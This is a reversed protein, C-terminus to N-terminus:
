GGPLAFWISGLALCQFFLVSKSPVLLWVEPQEAAVPASNAPLVYEQCHRLHSLQYCCLCSCAVAGQRYTSYSRRWCSTRFTGSHAGSTHNQRPVLVLILASLSFGSKCCTTKTSSTPCTSPQSGGSLNQNFSTYLLLHMVDVYCQGSM